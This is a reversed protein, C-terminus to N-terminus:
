ELNLIQERLKETEEKILLVDRTIELAQAKSGITNAERLIEQLLFGLKKSVEGGAELSERFQQLHSGLRVIEETVDAKDVLVAAEMALRQEDLPVQGLLEALREELRTKLAERMAPAADEVRALSKEVLAIRGALEEALAAGEREKMALIDALAEDLGKLSLERLVEQDDGGEPLRLLEPLALFEAATGREGFPGESEVKRLIELYHALVEEDLQPLATGAERELSFTVTVRGRGLDRKVRELIEGELFALDRPLRPQFDFFRNNVSKIDVQLQLGGGQVSASGFGTMSRIM